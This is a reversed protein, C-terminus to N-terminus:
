LVKMASTQIEVVSLLLLVNPIVCCCYVHKYLIFMINKIKNRVVFLADTIIKNSGRGAWCYPHM